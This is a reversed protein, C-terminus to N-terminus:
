KYPGILNSVKKLDVELLSHVILDAERLDDATTYPALVAICKMGARKAAQIGSPADEIVVCQSPPINLNEAAALYVAPNPKHNVVDDHTVLTEFNHLIGADTLKRKTDETTSSTGIAIPVSNDHLLQLLQEVGEKPQIGKQLEDKIPKLEEVIQTIDLPTHFKESIQQLQLVVSQGIFNHLQDDDIHINYKGLVQNMAQWHFLVSDILVGDMDFIVAIPQKNM